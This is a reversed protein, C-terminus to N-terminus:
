RSIGTMCLFNFLYYARPPSIINKIIYEEKKIQFEEGIANRRSFKLSLNIEFALKKEGLFPLRCRSNNM